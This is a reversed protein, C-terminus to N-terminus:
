QQKGATPDREREIETCIHTHTHIITESLCSLRLGSCAGSGGFVCETMGVFVCMSM